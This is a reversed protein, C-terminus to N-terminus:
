NCVVCVEVNKLIITFYVFYVSIFFITIIDIRKIILFKNERKDLFSSTPLFSVKGSFIFYRSHYM